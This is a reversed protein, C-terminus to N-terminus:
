SRQRRNRDSQREDVGEGGAQQRLDLAIARREGLHPDQQRRPARAPAEALREQAARAAPGHQQRPDLRDALDVGVFQQEVAGELQRQRRRDRRQAPLQQQRAQQRREAPRDLVRQAEGALERRQEVLQLGLAHRERREVAQDGVREGLVPLLAPLHQPDDGLRPRLDQGRVAREVRGLPAMAQQGRQGLAPALRRGRLPDDGGARGAADRRGARQELDDGPQRAARDHQGAEVVVEVLGAPPQELRAMRLVAQLLQELRQRGLAARDRGPRRGADRPVCGARARKRDSASRGLAVTPAQCVSAGGGASAIRSRATSSWGSRGLSASASASRIRATSSVGPRM